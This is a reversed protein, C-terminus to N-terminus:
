VRFNFNCFADIGYGNGPSSNSQQLPLTQASCTGSAWCRCFWSPQQPWAFNVAQKKWVPLPNKIIIQNTDLNKWTSYIKDVLKKDALRYYQIM